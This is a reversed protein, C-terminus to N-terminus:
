SQPETRAIATRIADCESRHRASDPGRFVSPCQLSCYSEAAVKLAALLGDRQERIERHEQCESALSGRGDHVCACPEGRHEICEPCEVFARVVLGLEPDVGAVRKGCRSCHVHEVYKGALVRATGDPSSPIARPGKTTDPSAGTSRTPETTEGSLAGGAPGVLEERCRGPYITENALRARQAAYDPQYHEAFPQRAFGSIVEVGCEVCKWLDADWLKYPEGTETLEEVTVSNKKPRMFRGCGCLLNSSTPM